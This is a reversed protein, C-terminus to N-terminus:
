ALARSRNSVALYNRKEPAYIVLRRFRFRVLEALIHKITATNPNIPAHARYMLHSVGFMAPTLLGYRFLYSRPEKNEGEVGERRGGIWGEKRGEEEVEKRGETSVIM